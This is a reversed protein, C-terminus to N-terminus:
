REVGHLHFAPLKRIPKAVPAPDAPAANGEERAAKAWAAWAGPVMPELPEHAATRAPQGAFHSTLIQGLYLSSMTTEM